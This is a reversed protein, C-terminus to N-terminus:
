LHGPGLHPATSPLSASSRSQRMPPGASNVHSTANGSDPSTAAVSSAMFGRSAVGSIAPLRDRDFTLKLDSYSSVLECWTGYPDETSKPLIESLRMWRHYEITRKRPDSEASLQSRCVFLIERSTYHLVRTSLVCEQWVWGRSALPGYSDDGNKIHRQARLQHSIVSSNSQLSFLAPHWDPHRERLFPVGSNSSSAAAITIVADQYYDCMKPTELEWDTKSDQIICLSDVWLWAINIRTAVKIADQFTAPLEEWAIREKMQPLTVITTQLSKHGGWCHSLAAYKGIALGSTEVLRVNGGDIQLV